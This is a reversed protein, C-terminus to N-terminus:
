LANAGNLHHVPTMLDNESGTNRSVDDRIGNFLAGAQFYTMRICQPSANGNRLLQIGQECYRQIGMIMEDLSIEATPPPLPLM